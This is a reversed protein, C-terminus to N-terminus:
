AERLRTDPVEARCRRSDEDVPRDVGGREAEGCLVSNGAGPGELKGCFWVCSACGACAMGRGRALGSM